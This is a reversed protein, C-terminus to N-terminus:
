FDTSNTEGEDESTDDSEYPADDAEHEDGAVYEGDSVAGFGPNGESREVYKVVQVGDLYLNAGGGLEKFANPHVAIIVESGATLKFDKPLKKGQSDFHAMTRISGDRNSGYQWAKFVVRGTPEDDNDKDLEDAFPWNKVTALKLGSEKAYAKIKEKFPEAKDGELIVEISLKGTPDPVSKSAAKDFKYARDTKPYRAIGRLYLKETKKKANAM